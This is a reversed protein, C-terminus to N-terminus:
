VVLAARWLRTTVTTPDGPSFVAKRKASVRGLPVTISTARVNPEEPAATRWHLPALHEAACYDDQVGLLVTARLPLSLSTRSKYKVKKSSGDSRAASDKPTAARTRQPHPARQTQRVVAPLFMGTVAMVPRIPVALLHVGPPASWPRQLMPRLDELLLTRRQHLMKLLLFRLSHLVKLLLPRQRHLVKLLLTM